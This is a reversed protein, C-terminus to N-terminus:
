DDKALNGAFLFELAQQLSARDAGASGGVLARRLAYGEILSIIAHALDESDRFGHAALFRDVSLPIEALQRAADPYLTPERAVALYTELLPLLAAGDRSTVQAALVAAMTRFDQPDSIAAEAASEITAALARLYTAFAEQILEVLTPYYYAVSSAPVGAEAAVARLTIGAPGETRLLTLAADVIRQQKVKARDQVTKQPM